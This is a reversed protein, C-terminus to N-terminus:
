AWSEAAAMWSRVGIGTNAIFYEPPRAILRETTARLEEDAGVPLTRISPGHLVTAGRRKLLEAQEEWRRDATVGICYGHLPEDVAAIMGSAHKPGTVLRSVSCILASLAGIRGM